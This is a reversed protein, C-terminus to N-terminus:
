HDELRWIIEVRNQWFTVAVFGFGCNHCREGDGKALKEGDDFPLFSITIKLAFPRRFNFAMGFIM